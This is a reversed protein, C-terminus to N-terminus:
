QPREALTVSVTSERGARNFTLKVTEGPEHRWLINTLPNDANLVDDNIKLIVDGTKLGANDAPSGRQVTTLIRAVERELRELM